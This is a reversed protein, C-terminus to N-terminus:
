DTQKEDTTQRNAQRNIKTQGDRNKAMKKRKNLIKM